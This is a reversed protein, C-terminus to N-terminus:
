EKYPNPKGAEDWTKYAIRSLLLSIEMFLITKSPYEKYEWRQVYDYKQETDNSEWMSIEDEEVTLFLRRKAKDQWNHVCRGDAFVKLCIPKELSRIGWKRANEETLRDEEYEVKEYHTIEASEFQFSCFDLSKYLEERLKDINKIKM